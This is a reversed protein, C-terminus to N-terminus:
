YIINTCRPYLTIDHLENGGAEVRCTQTRSLRLEFIAHRRLNRNIGIDINIIVLMVIIAVVGGISMVEFGSAALRSEGLPCSAGAAVVASVCANTHSLLPLRVAAAAHSEPPASHPHDTLNSVNANPKNANPTPTMSNTNAKM